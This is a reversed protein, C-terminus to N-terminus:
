QVSQVVGKMGETKIVVIERGVSIEKETSTVDIYHEEETDFDGYIYAQGCGLADIDYKVWGTKNTYKNAFELERKDARKVWLIFSSALAISPVGGVLLALGHDKFVLYCIGASLGGVICFVSVLSAIMSAKPHILEAIVTRSYVRQRTIAYLVMSFGVTLLYILM